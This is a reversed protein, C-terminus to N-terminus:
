RFIWEKFKLILWGNVLLSIVFLLLTVGLLVYANITAAIGIIILRPILTVLGALLSLLMLKFGVVLWKWYKGKRKAM